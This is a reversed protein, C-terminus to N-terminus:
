AYPWIFTDFSVFRCHTDAFVPPFEASIVSEFLSKVTKGIDWRYKLISRVRSYEVGAQSSSMITNVLPFRVSYSFFFEIYQFFNSFAPYRALLLFDEEFFGFPQSM